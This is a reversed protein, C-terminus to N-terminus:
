KSFKEVFKVSNQISAVCFALQCHEPDTVNQYPYPDKGLGARKTLSGRSALLNKKHMNRKSPVNVDNKM